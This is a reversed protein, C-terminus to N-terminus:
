PRALATLTAVAAQYRPDGHLARIDPEAGMPVLRSFRREFEPTPSGNVDDLVKSVAGADNCILIFDCGAELAAQASEIVGGAVRAGKMSLDDSFVAGTFGLQGRLIDQIWRRSFGAPMADVQSYVVHAPMVSALSAGLWCYPAADHQLIADLTREDTPIAHHSDAEPWGHGPFHKGCNAMGALAMGHCLHNALMAVTRADGHLARDGIVSSRNWELDLVPAFTLDVGHARLESAMVYGASVAARCAGLVDRDWLVGLSAMAPIETFGERFRQVRGGEHDVAILLQPDGLAHIQHTLHRLQRPSEYNRAFLIVMGVRPHALRDRDASTLTTGEIDVVVPGRTM